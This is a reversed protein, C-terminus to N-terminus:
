WWKRELATSAGGTQDVVASHKAHAPVAEKQRGVEIVDVHQELEAAHLFGLGAAEGGGPRCGRFQSGDLCGRLRAPLPMHGPLESANRLPSSSNWRLMAAADCLGNRTAATRSARRRSRCDAVIPSRADDAAMHRFRDLLVGGDVAGDSVPVRIFRCTGGGHVKVVRELVVAPLYLTPQEASPSGAPQGLAAVEPLDGALEAQRAVGDAAEGAGGARLRWSAADGSAAM